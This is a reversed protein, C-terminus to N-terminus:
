YKSLSEMVFLSLTVYVNGALPYPFAVLSRLSTVASGKECSNDERRGAVKSRGEKSVPHSKSM